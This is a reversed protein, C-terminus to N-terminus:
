APRRIRREARLEAAFERRFDAHFARLRDHASRFAARAERWEASAKVHDPTLGISNRPFRRFAAGAARYEATLQDATATAVAFPVGALPNRRAM